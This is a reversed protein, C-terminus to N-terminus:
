QLIAPRREIEDIFALIKKRSSLIIYENTVIWIGARIEEELEEITWTIGQSCVQEGNFGLPLETGEPIEIQSDLLTITVKAQLISGRKLKFANKPFQPLYIPPGNKNAM